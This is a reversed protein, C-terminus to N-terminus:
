NYISASLLLLPTMALMKIGIANLGKETSALISQGYRVAIFPPRM